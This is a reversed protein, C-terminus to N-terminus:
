FIVERGPIQTRDTSLSEPLVPRYQWLEFVEPPQMMDCASHIAPLSEDRWGKRPSTDLMIANESGCM